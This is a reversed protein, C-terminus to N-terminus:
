ASMKTPDREGTKALQVIRNAILERSAKLKVKCVVEFAKGFADTADPDFAAEGIFHHINM